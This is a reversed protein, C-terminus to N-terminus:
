WWGVATSLYDLVGPVQWLHFALVLLDLETVRAGRPAGAAPMVGGGHM